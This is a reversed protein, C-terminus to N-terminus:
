KELRRKKVMARRQEEKIVYGVYLAFTVLMAGIYIWTILGLTRTATAWIGVVYSLFSVTLGCFLVDAYNIIKKM